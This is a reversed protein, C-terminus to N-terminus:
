NAGDQKNHIEALAANLQALGDNMREVERALKDVKQNTQITVVMDSGYAYGYACVVLLVLILVGGIVWVTKKLGAGSIGIVELAKPVDISATTKICVYLIGITALIFVAASLVKIVYGFYKPM